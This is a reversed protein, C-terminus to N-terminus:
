VFVRDVDNTRGGAQMPVSRQPIGRLTDFCGYTRVSMCVNQCAVSSVRPSLLVYGHVCGSRLTGKLARVSLNFRLFVFNNLCACANLGVARIRRRTSWGLGGSDGKGGVCLWLLFVANLEAQPFTYKAERSKYSGAGPPRCAIPVAINRRRKAHQLKGATPQCM